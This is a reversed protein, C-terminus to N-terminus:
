GGLIINHEGYVSDLFSIWGRSALRRERRNLIWVFFQLWKKFVKWPGWKIKLSWRSGHFYTVFKYMFACEWDFSVKLAQATQELVKEVNKM